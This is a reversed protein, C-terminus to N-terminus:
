RAGRFLELQKAKEAAAKKRAAARRAAEGPTALDMDGMRSYLDEMGPPLHWVRSFPKAEPPFEDKIWVFWVYDTATSAEPDWVGEILAVREAFPCVFTPPRWSFIQHYREQGALWGLRLFLAVGETAIALARELFLGALEFPPNTIIWHPIAHGDELLRAPLEECFDRIEPNSGWDAVDSYDVDGFFEQLPRVMHLQGCAPERVRKGKFSELYHRILVERLLARTAWPPTPFYELSKKGLVRSEMVNSKM